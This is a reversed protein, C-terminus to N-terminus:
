SEEIMELLKEVQARREATWAARAARAAWAAAWAAAPDAAVADAAWAAAWAAAPDAAVAAAWAAWAAAELEANTAQGHAHREAVEVAAVSRPDPNEICSLARRACWVAFLRNTKNDSFMTAIWIRDKLPVNEMRLIEGLTAETRGQAFPEPDYCPKKERIMDLTIKVWGEELGRRRATQM